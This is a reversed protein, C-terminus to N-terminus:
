LCRRLTELPPYDALAFLDRPVVFGLRDLLEPTDYDFPEEDPEEEALHAHDQFIRVLKRALNFNGQEALRLVTDAVKEAFGVDCNERGPTMWWSPPLYDLFASSVCRYRAEVLFEYLGMRMM